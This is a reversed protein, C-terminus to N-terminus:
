DAIQFRCDAIGADTLCRRLRHREVRLHRAPIRSATAREVIRRLEGDSIAKRHEMPAIVAHGVQDLDDANL